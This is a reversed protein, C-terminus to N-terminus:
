EEWGDTQCMFHQIGKRIQTESFSICFSICPPEQQIGGCVGPGSHQLLLIGPAQGRTWCAVSIKTWHFWHQQRDPTDPFREPLLHLPFLSSPIFGSMTHVMERVQKPSKM